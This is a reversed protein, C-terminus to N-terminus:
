TLPSKIDAAIRRLEGAIASPRMVHMAAALRIAEAPMGFVISGGRGAALRERDRAVGVSMGTMATLWDARSEVFGAAIHQVIIVPVGFSPGLGSPLAQLALPGGTSAGVAVLGLRASAPTTIPAM